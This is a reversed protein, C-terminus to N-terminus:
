IHRSKSNVLEGTEKLLSNNTEINDELSIHLSSDIDYPLSEINMGEYHHSLRLFTRIFKETLNRQISEVKEIQEEKEEKSIKELEFKRNIVGNKSNWRVPLFSEIKINRYGLSHFYNIAINIAVVFSSTVDKLNGEDYLEYNDISSDFGEGIKFLLRNIKKSYPNTNINQNSNQIAYFYVTNNYIGFKIEPFIYEENNDNTISICMKYPTEYSIKDKKIELKINGNLLESRNSEFNIEKSNKIFEIRKRLYEEPNLFDEYTANSWLFTMILKEPCTRDIEYNDNNLVEERFNKTGYFDMCLNVYEILLKDFLEKNHITLTPILYESNDYSYNNDKSISTKFFVFYSFFCKVVGKDAEKVIYNYFIDLIDM